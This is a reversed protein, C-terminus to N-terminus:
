EAWSYKLEEYKILGVRIWEIERKCMRRNLKVLLVCVDKLLIDTWDEQSM